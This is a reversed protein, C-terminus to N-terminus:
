RGQLRRRLRDWFGPAAPNAHICDDAHDVIDAADDLRVVARGCAECLRRDDTQTELDDWSMPCAEVRFPGFDTLPVPIDAPEADLAREVWDELRLDVKPVGPFWSLVAFASASFDATDLMHPVVYAQVTAQAALEPRLELLAAAADIDGSGVAARLRELADSVSCSLVAPQAGGCERALLEAVRRATPRASAEKSLMRRVLVEVREPIEPRSLRDPEQSLTRQMQAFVTDAAFPAAGELAWYLTAGLAFVDAAPTPPHGQLLEPSLYTPSRPAAVRGTVMQPAAPVPAKIFRTWRAVGLPNLAIDWPSLWQGTLGADHAQALGSAVQCGVRYVVQPDLPAALGTAMLSPGTVWRELTVSASEVDVNDALFPSDLSGLLSRAARFRTWDTDVWFAEVRDEAVWPGPLGRASCLWRRGADGPHLVAIRQIDDDQVAM